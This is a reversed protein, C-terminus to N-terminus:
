ADHKEKSDGTWRVHLPASPRALPDLIRDLGDDALREAFTEADEFAGMVGALRVRATVTIEVEVTERAEALDYVAVTRGAAVVIHPVSAEPRKAGTLVMEIDDPSGGTVSELM